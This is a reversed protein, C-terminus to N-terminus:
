YWHWTALLSHFAPLWHEHSGDGLAGGVTGYWLAYLVGGHVVFGYTRDFIGEPTPHAARGLVAPAGDLMVLSTPGPPYLGEILLAALSEVGPHSIHAAAPGCDIVLVQGEWRGAETGVGCTLRDPAFSMSYDALARQDVTGWGPPYAFTFRADQQCWGGIAPPARLETPIPAQWTRGHTLHRLWGTLEDVAATQVRIVGRGVVDFWVGHGDRGWGRVMRYPIELDVADSGPDVRVTVRGASPRAVVHLALSDNTLVIQGYAPVSVERGELSGAKARGYMSMAAIGVMSWAVTSPSGLVMLRRQSSTVNHLIYPLQTEVHCRYRMVPARVAIPEQQPWSGESHQREPAPPSPASPIANPYGGREQMNALMATFDREWAHADAAPASAVFYHAASPHSWWAEAFVLDEGDLRCSYTLVVGACGCIRLSTPQGLPEGVLARARSWRVPDEMVYNAVAHWELRRLQVQWSQGHDAPRQVAAVITTGGRLPADPPIRREVPLWAFQDAPVDSWGEPVGFTLPPWAQQNWRDIRVRDAPRAGADPLDAIKAPSQPAAPREQPEDM